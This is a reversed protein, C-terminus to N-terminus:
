EVVWNVTSGEVLGPRIDRIILSGDPVGRVVCTERGARVMEVPLRLLSSDRVSWVMNGNIVMSKPLSLANETVAGAVEGSLFMGEKLGPGDLTIFVPVLQTNAEVQSGIRAIRGTYARGNDSSHLSVTQGVTLFDLDSIAASSELEYGGTRLFQGIRQGTRVLTGRQIDVLTLEGDFPANLVYKGLREEASRIAYYQSQVNKSALFLKERSTSTEPLDNLLKEPDLGEVYGKWVPFRDPFEIQIDPLVQALSTLLASRQGQLALRAERDDLRLLVEGKRFRYGEKLPHDGDMAVGSVEAYLDVRDIATLRGQVPIPIRAPGNTASLVRVTAQTSTEPAKRPPATKQRSLVQFGAIGSVFLVATLIIVLRRNRTKM